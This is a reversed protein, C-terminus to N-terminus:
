FDAGIIEGAKAMREYEDLLNASALIRYRLPNKEKLVERRWLEKEM